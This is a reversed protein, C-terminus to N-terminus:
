LSLKNSNMRRIIGQKISKSRFVDTPIGLRPRLPCHLLQLPSCFGGLIKSEICVSCKAPCQEPVCNIWPRLPGGSKCFRTERFQSIPPHGNQIYKIFTSDVQTVFYMRSLIQVIADAVFNKKIM